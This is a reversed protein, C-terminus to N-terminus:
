RAKSAAAAHRQAHPQKPWALWFTAGSDVQGQAWVRGGFQEATRRASALGVGSGEYTKSPHLRGFMQFLKSVQPPAFGVGNDELGLRYETATEQIHLHMRAEARSKTFKLANNLYEGLIVVLAQPDGQLVPLPDHTVEVNRDVMLLRADRLVERWVQNLDVARIHGRLQRVKMYREVSAALTVLSQIAQETHTLPRSVAAEQPGLLRRLVALFNMARALPLHVQQIFTMIVTELEATAQDPDLASALMFERQGPEIVTLRCHGSQAEGSVTLDVVIPLAPDSGRPLKAELRQPLRTEFALEFVTQFNSPGGDTLLSGFSQGGLEEPTRQLLGCARVNVAEIQGQANLVLYSLPADTFFAVTQQQAQLQTELARLRTQADPPPLPNTM